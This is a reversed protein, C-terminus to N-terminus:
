QTKKLLMLYGCLSQRKKKNTQVFKLMHYETFSPIFSFDIINGDVDGWMKKQYVVQKENWDFLRAEYIRSSPEGIFVIEYWTGAKLPVIVPIEYQSEMLISSEKVVIFGKSQYIQKISDAQRQIGPNECPIIRLTDQSKAFTSL